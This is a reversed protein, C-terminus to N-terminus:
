RKRCCSSPNPLVSDVRQLCSILLAQCILLLMILTTVTPREIQADHNENKSDSFQMVVDDAADRMALACAETVRPRPLKRQAVQCHM